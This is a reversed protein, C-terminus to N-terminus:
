KFWDESAPNTRRTPRKRLRHRRLHGVLLAGARRNCHAHEWRRPGDAGGLAIDVVHGLDLGQARWMPRGCRPCPRGEPDPLREAWRKHDAGYRPKM